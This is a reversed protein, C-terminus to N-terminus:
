LPLTSLITGVKCILLSLSLSSLPHLWNRHWSSCQKHSQSPNSVQQFNGTGLAAGRVLLQFLFVNPKDGWPHVKGGLDTIEESGTTEGAVTWGGCLGMWTTKRFVSRVKSSGQM